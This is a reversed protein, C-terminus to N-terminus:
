SPDTIRTCGYTVRDSTVRIPLVYGGEEIFAPLGVGANNVLVDVTGWGSAKIIADIQEKVRDTGAAIDLAACHLNSVRLAPDEIFHTINSLTKATAIVRDGRALVISVLRRGFGSSTGILRYQSSGPHYPQEIPFMGTILWVKNTSAPSTM